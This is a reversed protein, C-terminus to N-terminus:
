RICGICLRPAPSSTHREYSPVAQPYWRIPTSSTAARLAVLETPRGRLPTTPVAPWCRCWLPIYRPPHTEAFPPAPTNGLRSTPEPGPAAMRCLSDCSGSRRYRTPNALQRDKVAKLEEVQPAM